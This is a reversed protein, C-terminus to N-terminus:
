FYLQILPIHTDVYVYIITHVDLVCMIFPIFTILGINPQDIGLLHFAAVSPQGRDVCAVMISHHDALQTLDPKTLWSGTCHNRTRWLEDHSKWQFGIQGGSWYNMVLWGSRIQNASRWEIITVRHQCLSATHTHTHTCTYIRAHTHMNHKCVVCTHAITHTHTCTREWTGASYQLSHPPQLCMDCDTCGGTSNWVGWYVLRCATSLFVCECLWICLWCMPHLLGVYHCKGRALPDFFVCFIAGNAADNTNTDQAFIISTCDHVRMVCEVWVYM